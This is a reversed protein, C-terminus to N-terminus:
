LRKRALKVFQTYLDALEPDWDLHEQQANLLASQGRAIPGTLVKQLSGHKANSLSQNALAYLLNAAMDDNYGERKLVEKAISFLITTFNGSLVAATHYALRNGLFPYVTFGLQNALKDINSRAIQTIGHGCELTAPISDPIRIEPGPFSQIPHLCAINADPIPFVDLGMSGSAHVVCVEQHYTLQNAVNQIVAEPVCIYVLGRVNTPFSRGYTTHPISQRSLIHAVSRGLRGQGLIHIQM